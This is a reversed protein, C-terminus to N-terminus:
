LNFMSSNFIKWVSFVEELCQCIEINLLASTQRLIKLPRWYVSPSLYKKIYIVQLNELCLLGPPLVGRPRRVYFVYIDQLCPILLPDEPCLMELSISIKIFM